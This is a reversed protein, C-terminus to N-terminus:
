CDKKSSLLSTQSDKKHMTVKQAHYPVNCFIFLNKNIGTALYESDEPNFNRDLPPGPPGPAGREGLFFTIIHGDNRRFDLEIYLTM